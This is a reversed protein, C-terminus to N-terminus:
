KDRRTSDKDRDKMRDSPDQSGGLKGGTNAPDAHGEISKNGDYDANGGNGCSSLSLVFISILASILLLQPKMTLIIKLRIILIGHRSFNL